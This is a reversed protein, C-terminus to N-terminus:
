TLPIEARLSTGAGPPSDLFIKGGLAEVRDKLGALGTGGTFDAGGTGDDRIAIRLVDGAADAEVRVASASAHRAANTLAEAVVYYASVEVQEPLRDQFRVDVRVPIPSRRALARLAPRLGGDALIAPHIGRAIERLEDLVGVMEAVARDLQVGLGALEPPVEERAGRLQLALTVLRQQAGDHLDHEIRRRARDAAGVIRARSAIVEARAEANAIATAVLETFAALRTETDAPLLEKHTSAVIMVGWLRGEVSVPVGVSSRFGWDHAAVQSIVGSSEAYDIRAPQGTQHVLTSVNQGGLPLWTGVSTPAPGGTTTTTWQGVVELNQKEYRILVAFSAALQQGVEQAVAAFVQDSPAGRAVLTAVRRLTAQEDAIRSFDAYLQANDLSVALQAAILRVADLRGATFAGRILGNELLLVARLLGRSLIPVALLSCCELGAFYPDRAFRDDGTADAVALPERTRQVYRLVSTPMEHEGDADDPPGPAPRRWRQQDESWLLLHVGTAGTMAGLVQAVRDYLREISTESSLAQSASLIGLLDVTGTTVTSRRPLSDAPGAAIAPDPELAPYAWDLQSVKATAGWAAYEQRAGALLEYGAQDLGHAMQFRAARETILARHWPPQRQAAERRAADFAATAARFDGAAWAREAELLRLLHLFNDPADAASLALWRTAQDLESLLGAREDGDTARVQGALALGRLLYAVATPYMGGINALLSMSIAAASHRPLSALDGFIAAAVARTLHANFLAFPNGAYRDFWVAEAVAASGEGRLVDALWRYPELAQGLYENGTRRAFALGTEVEAVYDDLSAACGLQYYVVVHHSYGANTLDTGAILGEAAHRAAALGTEVPDFWCSLMSFVFRAVSTEPEYGRAECFALIRRVARYGAAYDGRRVAVAMAATGAPAALTRGPGHRLWIRAAELKLWAVMAPDGVNFAIASILRSAALLAPDTIDARALDDAAETQDLWRYLHVYQQDLEAPLRDPAPVTIGLERLAALSLGLGDAFRNRNTLSRVQLVTADPRDLVAPGLQEIAAYEEDAEELRGLCFLAAHRGTHVEILTATEGPGILPLTASLLANVLTYDGIPTAQGAARRLLGTVARREAADQVADVVPLYQGAAVAFLPPVAALRRAMGLHLGRRQLPDLGALIKERIRDHRFRVAPDAGPEAVLLGDDFAPALAQDVAGASEGTATQLLSLEARGGLCAMAQVMARSAPPMAAVRGAWVETVEVRGLHACPQRM